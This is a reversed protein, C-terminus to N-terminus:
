IRASGHLGAHAPALRLTGRGQPAVSECEVARVSTGVGHRQAAGGEVTCQSGGTSRRSAAAGDCDAVGVLEGGERKRRPSTVEHEAKNAAGLRQKAAAVIAEGARKRHPESSLSSPIVSWALVCAYDALLKALLSHLLGRATSSRHCIRSMLSSISPLWAHSPLQSALAAMAAHPADRAKDDGLRDHLDAYDLWLSLLRPLSSAAHKGGRRLAAGYCRIVAPLHAAM